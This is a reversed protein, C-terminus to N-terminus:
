SRAIKMKEVLASFSDSFLTSSLVSALFRSKSMGKLAAILEVREALSPDLYLTFKVPSSLSSSPTSSPNLLSSLGAAEELSTLNKKM